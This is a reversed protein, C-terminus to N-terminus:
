KRSDESKKLLADCKVVIEKLLKVHEKLTKIEPEIPTPSSKQLDLIQIVSNLESLMRELTEKMGEITDTSKTNEKLSPATGLINTCIELIEINEATAVYEIDLDDSLGVLHYYLLGIQLPTGTLEMGELSCHSESDSYNNFIKGSLKLTVKEM